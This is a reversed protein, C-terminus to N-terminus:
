RGTAFRSHKEHDTKDFAEVSRKAHRALTDALAFDARRHHHERAADMWRPLATPDHVVGFAAARKQVGAAVVNVQHLPEEITRDCLNRGLLHLAAVERSEGIDGGHDARHLVSYKHAQEFAVRM